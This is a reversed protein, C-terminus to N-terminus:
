FYIYFTYHYVNDNTFCRTMTSYPLCDLKDKIDNDPDLHMLTVQYRDRINYVGNNAHMKRTDDLKYIIAPYTFKISTPPQFFVQNSELIEELIKQFELRRTEM